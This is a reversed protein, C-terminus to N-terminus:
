PYCAENAGLHNWRCVSRLHGHDLRHHLMAHPPLSPEIAAGTLTEVTGIWNLAMASSAQCASITVVTSPRFGNRM